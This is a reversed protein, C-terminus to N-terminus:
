VLVIAVYGSLLQMVLVLVVRSLLGLCGWGFRLTFVVVVLLVAFGVWWLAVIVSLWIWCCVVRRLLGGVDGWCVM